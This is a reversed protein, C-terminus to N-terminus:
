IFVAGHCLGMPFLEFTLHVYLVLMFFTSILINYNYQVMHTCASAMIMFKPNFQMCQIPATHDSALACVKAGTETNWVHVKGDTSGLFLTIVTFMGVYLAQTAPLLHGWAYVNWLTFLM